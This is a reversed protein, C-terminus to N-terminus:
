RRTRSVGDPRRSTSRMMVKIVSVMIGLDEQKRDGGLGLTVGANILLGDMVIYDLNPWLNIALYDSIGDTNTDILLDLYGTLRDSIVKRPEIQLSIAAGQSAYADLLGVQLHNNLEIGGLVMSQMYGISLGHEEMENFPTFNLTAASSETLAYKAGIVVASFDDRFDHLFGFTARAGVELKDTLCYKGMVYVDGVDGISGIDLSSLGANMGIGGALGPLVYYPDYHMLAGQAAVQLASFSLLFGALAIHRKM